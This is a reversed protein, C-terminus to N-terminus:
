GKAMEIITVGDGGEGMEGPRFSTVLPHMSLTERVARRLAGTGRGHIVQVWPLNGLYADDLYRELKTVGEEVRWGRLDLEMTPKVTRRTMVQVPPDPSPTQQRPPGSVRDLKRRDVQVRFQGVQVEVNQGSINVVEGKAELGPIWVTDGAVVPEAPVQQLRPEAELHTIRDEVDSVIHEAESVAQTKEPSRRLSNRARAVEKSISELERHAEHRATELIEQREEEISLLRQRLEATQEELKRRSDQAVAMDVASRRHIEKLEAL